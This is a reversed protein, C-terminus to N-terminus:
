RHSVGEAPGSDLPLNAAETVLNFFVDHNVHYVIEAIEADSYHKKLGDFDLDSILAPDVTLKWAFAFAAREGPTFESEGSRDIAFIADDSVGLARLRDRAHALAYWACDGRASVWALQANLKPSLRGNTESAILQTIKYAGSKPFNALLRAWNLSPRDLPFTNEALLAKTASQDMLAFRAKRYSCEAWKAEVTSRASLAPRPAAAPLCRTGTSGAPVPGVQTVDTAYKPSTPTLFLRFEEQYLRLPGTWRNIANFGAVSAILELVQLDKFHDRVADIDADTVTQPAITLKRTLAFAAREAFTFESWSLDLAAIRDDTVGVAPLQSEQHGMCYICNNSRSVIWFLMTKFAYDLTMNPDPDIRPNPNLRIGQRVPAKPNRLAFSDMEQTRGDAMLFSGRRIEPPLLNRTASISNIAAGRENAAAVEEPTPEPPKLRPAFKKSEELLQKMEPRTLPVPPPDFAWTPASMALFVISTRILRM